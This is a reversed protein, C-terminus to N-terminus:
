STKLRYSASGNKYIIGSSDATCVKGSPASFTVGSGETFTGAFSGIVEFGAIFDARLTSPVTIIANATIKWITNHYTDDITVNGSITKYVQTQAQLATIASTNGSVIALIDTIQKQVKGFAVLVTDSSVVVTGTVFSIGTLVTSLVRAATFYLNSGENIDTTTLSVNGVVLVGGKEFIQAYNGAKITAPEFTLNKFITDTYAEEVLEIDINSNNWLTFESGNWFSKGAKQRVLGIKPATVGVALKIEFRAALSNDMQIIFPDNNPITYQRWADSATLKYDVDEEEIIVGTSSVILRAVFLGDYEPEVAEPAEIGEVLYFIQPDDKAEVILVKIGTTVPTFPNTNDPVGKSRLHGNIMVSNVGSIDLGISVNNSTATIAGISVVKDISNERRFPKLNLSNEILETGDSSLYMTGTIDYLIFEDPEAPLNYIEGVTDVVQFTLGAENTSRIFPLAYTTLYKIVINGDLTDTIKLGNEVEEIKIEHAM